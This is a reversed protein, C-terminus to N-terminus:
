WWWNEHKKQEKGPAKLASLIAADKQSRQVKRQHRWSFLIGVFMGFFFPIAVAVGLPLSVEGVLFHLTVPDRNFGTFVVALIFFFLVVIMPRSM